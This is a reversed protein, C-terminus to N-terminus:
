GVLGHAALRDELVADRHAAAFAPAVQALSALAARPVLGILESGAIAAGALAAEREVARYVEAMSTTRYDTLNMSVQVSGSHALPLGLAKLCPLGGNSTRIARAIRRALALDDRDLVLNWAVLPGRAGIAIAGATPHLAGPGYDPAWAPEHLRAALGALGGRRISELSRRHPPRSAAEYPLVPVGLTDGIARGVAHAVAVADAMTAGGLPVFPLVDIAGVRPHVGAHERLDIEAIATRALALAAEAVTAADGAFTFVARHHSPDATRDLLTAGAGAIAAACRDLRAPDRGESVNPIAELLAPPMEASCLALRGDAAARRWRPGVARALAGGVKCISGL